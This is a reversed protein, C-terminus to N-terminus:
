RGEPQLDVHAPEGPARVYIRLPVRDGEGAALKQVGVVTGPPVLGLQGAYLTVSGGERELLCILVYQLLRLRDRAEAYGELREELVRAREDSEAVLGAILRKVWPPLAAGLRRLETPTLWPRGHASGHGNISM